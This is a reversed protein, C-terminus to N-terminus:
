AIGCKKPSLIVTNKMKLNLTSLAVPFATVLGVIQWSLCSLGDETGRASLSYPAVVCM